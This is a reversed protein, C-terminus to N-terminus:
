PREGYDKLVWLLEGNAGEGYFEFDAWLQQTGTPSQYTLSPLSINLDPSVNGTCVTESSSDSRWLQGAPTYKAIFADSNGVSTINSAAESSAAFNANAGYFKGTILANDQSDVALGAGIALNEAGSVTAGFHQAWIFAGSDTYKALFVDGANDFGYASLNHASTSPDFDVTGRFWGTVLVNNQSDFGVRHGGDLGAAGPLSFAWRLAGAPDYAAVFTDDFNSISTLNVRTEAPDFDATGRFHGTLYPNNDRGVRMAGPSVVDQNTGGLSNAWNLTGDARYQALFIDTGGQSSLETRGNPNFNATGRYNGAWYVTDFADVAVTEYGESFVDTIGANVGFAWLCSGDPDYKALFHNHGEGTAVVQIANGFAVTGAFVGTVYVNGGSDVALDWAREETNGQTNGIVVGWLYDGTSTYKALFADFGGYTNLLANGEDPAFDVVRSGQEAMGIYGTVFINDAADTIVGHPVDTSGSGGISQTWLLTGTADYKGIVTDIGGLSTLNVAADSPDVDISNQYLSAVIINDQSDTAIAKGYEQGDSAYTFLLPSIPTDAYSIHCLMWSLGILSFHWIHTFRKSSM